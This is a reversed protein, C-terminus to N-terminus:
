VGIMKLVKKLESKNKLRGKFVYGQVGCEIIYEIWVVGDDYLFLMWQHLEDGIDKEYLFAIPISRIPEIDERSPFPEANNNYEWGFSEIDERDLHKVRIRSESIDEIVRFADWRDVYEKLWRGSRIEYEFGIQFEEAEPTYYKSM